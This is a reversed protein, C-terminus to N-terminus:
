NGYEGDNKLLADVARTKEKALTELNKSTGKTNISEIIVEGILDRAAGVSSMFPRDFPYGNQAAPAQSAVLEADVKKLVDADKWVSNRAMTVSRLMGDKALDKGTAWELFKWAADKNRSTKAIAM